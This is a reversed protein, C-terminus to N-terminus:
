LKLPEGTVKFFGVDPYSSAETRGHKNREGEGGRNRVAINDRLM